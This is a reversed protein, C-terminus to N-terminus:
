GYGHTPARTTYSAYRTPDPSRPQHENDSCVTVKERGRKEVARQARQLATAMSYRLTYTHLDGKYARTSFAMNQSALWQKTCCKRIASTKGSAPHTQTPVVIVNIGLATGSEYVGTTSRPPRCKLRIRRKPYSPVDISSSFRFSCDEQSGPIVRLDDTNGVVPTHPLHGPTPPSRSPESDIWAREIPIRGDEHGHRVPSRFVTFNSFRYREHGRV